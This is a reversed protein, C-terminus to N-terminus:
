WLESIAKWDWDKDINDSVFKWTINPNYSMAKWDWPLDKNSEVIRPTIAPNQSVISYDFLIKPECRTLFNIQLHPNISLYKGIRKVFSEKISPSDISIRERAKDISEKIFSSIEISTKVSVRLSSLFESDVRNYTLVSPIDWNKDPNRMIIKVPIIRSLLKYDWPLDPNNVVIDWTVDERESISSNWPAHKNNCILDINIDKRTSIISWDLRNIYLRALLIDIPVYKSVKKWHSNLKEQKFYGPKCTTLWRKNRYYSDEDYKTFFEDNKYNYPDLELKKQCRNLKRLFKHSFYKDEVPERHNRRYYEGRRYKDIKLPLHPHLKMLIKVMDDKPKPVLNVNGYYHKNTLKLSRLEHVTDLYSCILDIIEPLFNM